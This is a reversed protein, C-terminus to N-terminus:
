MHEDALGADAADDLAGALRHLGGADVIRVVDSAHALEADDVQRRQLLLRVQMEREREIEEAVLDGGVSGVRKVGAELAAETLLPELVIVLEFGAGIRHEAEDAALDLLLVYRREGAEVHPQAVIVDGVAIDPHAAPVPDDLPETNRECDLKRMDGEMAM